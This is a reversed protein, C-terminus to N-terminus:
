LSKKSPMFALDAWHSSGDSRVQGGDFIESPEGTFQERGQPGAHSGVSTGISPQGMSDGNSLQSPLTTMATDALIDAMFPIGTAAAERIVADKLAASPTRQGVPADLRPDYEPRRRMPARHESVAGHISSRQSQPMAAPVLGESLVELLLERVLSKLQDRSAKM